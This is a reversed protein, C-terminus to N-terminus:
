ISCKSIAAIEGLDFVCVMTSLGVLNFSHMHIEASGLSQSGHPQLVEEEEGKCCALDSFAFAPFAGTGDLSHSEPFTKEAEWGHPFALPCQEDTRNAKEEEVIM